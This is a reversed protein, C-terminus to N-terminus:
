LVATEGRKAEIGPDKGGQGHEAVFLRRRDLALGDRGEDGALVQQPLGGGTGALCRRERQRDQLADEVFSLALGGGGHHQHGRALERHLHRFRHVAIALREAHAHQRHVAALRDAALEMRQAGADVDHDGRGPAREVVDAAAAQLQAAHLDHHEVFGVLHEVHTEGLVDLRHEGLSGPLALGHEEGRGHRRADLRDRPLALAIRDADLDRFGRRLRALHRLHALLRVQHLAVHLLHREAADEVVRVSTSSSV